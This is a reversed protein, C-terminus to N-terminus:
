PVLVFGWLGLAFGEQGLALGWLGLELGVCAPPIYTTNPGRTNPSVNAM